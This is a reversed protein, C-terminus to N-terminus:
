HEDGASSVTARWRRVAFFLGLILGAIAGVATLLPRNPRTYLTPPPAVAPDIVSFAYDPRVTALMKSRMQSAMLSAISERLEIVQTNRMEDELFKLTLDAEILTHRRIQANAAAVFSNAWQAALQPDSWQLTITAFSTHPDVAIQRVNRDFYRFAADDSYVHPAFGLKTLLTKRAQLAAAFNSEQLFKETFSRSKLVALNQDVKGGRGGAAGALSALGGFQKALGSLAGGVEAEDASPAVLVTAVYLKTMVFTGALASVAAALTCIAVLAFSQKGAMILEHLNLTRGGNLKDGTRGFGAPAVRAPRSPLPAQNLPFM